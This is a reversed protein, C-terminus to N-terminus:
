EESETVEVIAPRTRASRRRGTGKAELEALEAKARRLATLSSWVFGGLVLFSLGYAPWVYAAYGGM